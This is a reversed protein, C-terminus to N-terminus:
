GGARRAGPNNLHTTVRIPRPAFFPTAVTEIPNSDRIVSSPVSSALAALYIHITFPPSSPCPLPLRSAALLVLPIPHPPLPPPNVHERCTWIGPFKIM